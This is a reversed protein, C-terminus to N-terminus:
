VAFKHCPAHGHQRGGAHIGRCGQGRGGRAGGHPKGSRSFWALHLQSPWDWVTLRSGGTRVCLRRGAQVEEVPGLVM